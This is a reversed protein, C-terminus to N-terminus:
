VRYFYLIGSGLGTNAYSASNAPLDAIETFSIGDTSREVKYGAENIDNDVWALNIRSASVATATLSTPANLSVNPTTVNAINSYASNLSLFFARVRYQYTTNPAVTNDTYSTTNPPLNNSLVTFTAFNDTSRELEFGQESTDNDTWSLNVQNFFPATATLSTPANPPTTYGKVSVDDIYIHNSFMDTLKLRFDVAANGSLSSVDIIRSAWESTSAPTFCTTSFWPSVTALQEGSQTWVDTYSVGCNTSAQLTLTAFSTTSWARYALKFEVAAAVVGVLNVRPFNLYLANTGISSSCLNRWLSRSSSYGVTTNVQWDQGTTNNQNSVSWGGSPFTGEFDQSVPLPNGVSVNLIKNTSETLIGNSV